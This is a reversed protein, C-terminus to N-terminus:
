QNNYESNENCPRSLIERHVIFGGLKCSSRQGQKLKAMTFRLYLSFPYQSAFSIRIDYGSEGGEVYCAIGSRLM